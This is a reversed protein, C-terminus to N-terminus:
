SENSDSMYRLHTTKEQQLEPYHLSKTKELIQQGMLKAFSQVAEEDDFHIYITRYYDSDDQHFEPMGQWEADPDNVPQAPGGVGVTQYMDASEALDALLAMVAADGTAVDRLLVDLATPDIGALASLPDFTALVEAEEAETLDVYAVPITAQGLAIAQKARLHGDVLRGTRRNVLVSAVWGVDNLVGTLAAAQNKPHRRYNKPNPILSRPDVDAHGVIRNAWQPPAKEPTPM